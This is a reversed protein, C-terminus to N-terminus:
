TRAAGRSPMATRLEPYLVMEEAEAHLSLERRLEAFTKEISARGRATGVRGSAGEYRAFLKEVERHDKELESVIDKAM